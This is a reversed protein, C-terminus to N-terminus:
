NNHTLLIIINIIISVVCLFYALISLFIAAGNSGDKNTKREHLSLVLGVTIILLPRLNNNLIDIFDNYSFPTNNLLMRIITFIYLLVGYLSTILGVKGLFNNKTNLKRPTKSVECGCKPCIIAAISLKEGCNACFKSNQNEM